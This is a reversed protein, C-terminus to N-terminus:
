KGGAERVICSKLDPVQDSEFRKTRNGGEPEMCTCGGERGAGDQATEVSSDLMSCDIAESTLEASDFANFTMAGLDPGLVVCLGFAPYSPGDGLVAAASQWDTTRDDTGTSDSGRDLEAEGIGGGDHMAVRKPERM